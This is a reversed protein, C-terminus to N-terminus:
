VILERALISLDNAYGEFHDSTWHPSDGNLQTIMNDVKMAEIRANIECIMAFYRLSYENM